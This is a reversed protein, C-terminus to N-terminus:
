KFCMVRSLFATSTLRLLRQSIGVFGRQDLEPTTQTVSHGLLAKTTPVFILVESLINTYLMHCSAMGSTEVPSWGFCVLSWIFTFWLAVRNTNIISFWLAMCNAYQQMTPIRTTLATIAGTFVASITVRLTLASLNNSRRGRKIHPPANWCDHIDHEGCTGGM